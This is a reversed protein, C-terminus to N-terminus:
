RYKCPNQPECRELPYKGSDFMMNCSSNFIAHSSIACHLGDVVSVGGNQTFKLDINM